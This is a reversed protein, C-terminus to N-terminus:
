VEIFFGIRAVEFHVRGVLHALITERKWGVVRKVTVCAFSSSLRLFLNAMVVISQILDIFQLLESSVM